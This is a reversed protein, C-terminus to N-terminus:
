IIAPDIRYRKELEKTRKDREESSLYGSDELIKVNKPLNLTEGEARVKMGVVNGRIFRELLSFFDNRKFIIIEYRIQHKDEM